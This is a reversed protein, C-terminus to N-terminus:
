RHNNQCRLLHIHIITIVKTAGYISAMPSPAVGLISGLNIIIGRQKKRMGPLLINTLRAMSMINCNIIDQIQEESQLEAFPGWPVDMGVNNILLGVSLDALEFRLIPYINESDTFDAVLTRIKVM